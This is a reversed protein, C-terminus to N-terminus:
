ATTGISSRLSLYAASLSQEFPRRIGVIANSQVTAGLVVTYMVVDEGISVATWVSWKGAASLPGRAAANASWAVSTDVAGTSMFSLIPLCSLANEWLVFRPFVDVTTPMLKMASARLPKLQANLKKPMGLNCRERGGIEAIPPAGGPDSGTAQAPAEEVRPSSAATAGLTTDPATWAEKAAMGGDSPSSGGGIGVAIDGPDSAVSGGSGNSSASARVLMGDADSHASGSAGRSSFSALGVAMGESGALGVSSCSVADADNIGSRVLRLLNAVIAVPVAASEPRRGCRTVFITVILCWVAV